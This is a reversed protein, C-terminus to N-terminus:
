LTSAGTRIARRLRWRGVVEMAAGLTLGGLASLLLVGLHWVLIHCLSLDPCHVELVTIGILAAFGGTTAGILKPALTAGRRLIVWSLLGGPVAYKLGSRLCFLGRTVFASEERWQFVAAMGTALLLFVAFLLLTPSVLHKSGPRMQRVMSAALAGAALALSAFIVVKQLPSLTPWGYAHLQISGVTAVAAFTIALGVLFVRSPALPHVPTLDRLLFAHISRVRSELPQLTRPREDLLRMLAKCRPCETIHKAAEPPLVAGQSSFNLFADLDYCTM